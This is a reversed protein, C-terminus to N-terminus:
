HTHVLCMGPSGTFGLSAAISTPLNPFMAVAAAAMRSSMEAHSSSPSRMEAEAKIHITGMDAAREVSSQLLHLHSQAQAEASTIPSSSNNNVMLQSRLEGSRTQELHLHRMMGQLRDKEKALQLELQSVIQMQVRTQATSKDDLVHTSSLHRFFAASDPCSTDCGPWGCHGHSFLKEVSSLANSSHPSKRNNSGNLNNKNNNDPRNEKFSGESSARTAESAHRHRTVEKLLLSEHQQQHNISHNNSNTQNQNQNQGLMLAQQTLQIQAM